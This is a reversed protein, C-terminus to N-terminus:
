SLAGMTQLRKLVLECIESLDERRMAEHGRPIASIRIAKILGPLRACFEEIKEIRLWTKSASKRDPDTLELHQREEQSKNAWFGFLDSPHQIDEIADELILVLVHNPFEDAHFNSRRFVQPLEHIM